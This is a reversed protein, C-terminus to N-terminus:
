KFWGKVKDIWSSKCTVGWRRIEPEKTVSDIWEEIEKLSHKAIVVACSNIFRSLAKMFNECDGCHRGLSSYVAYFNKDKREISGLHTGRFWVEWTDPPLHYQTVQEVCRQLENLIAPRNMNRKALAVQKNLQISM